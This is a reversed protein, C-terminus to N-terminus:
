KFYDQFSNTRIAGRNNGVSHGLCYYEPPIVISRLSTTRNATVLEFFFDIEVLIVISVIKIPGLNIYNLKIKFHGPGARGQRKEFM